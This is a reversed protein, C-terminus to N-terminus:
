PSTFMSAVTENGSQGKLAERLQASDFHANRDIAAIEPQHDKPLSGDQDAPVFDAVEHHSAVRGRFIMVGAPTVVADGPRLTVDNLFPGLPGPGVALLSGDSAVSPEDDVRVAVRRPRHRIHHPAASFAPAPDIMPAAANSPGNFLLGLLGQASAPASLGLLLGLCLGPVASTGVFGALKARISNRKSTMNM